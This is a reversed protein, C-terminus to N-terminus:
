ILVQNVLVIKRFSHVAKVVVVAFHGLRGIICVIYKQALVPSRNPQKQTLGKIGSRLVLTLIQLIGYGGAVIDVDKCPNVLIHAVSM